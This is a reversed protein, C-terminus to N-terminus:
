GDWVIDRCNFVPGETCVRALTTTKGGEPGRTRVRHVCALCAGLGCGMHQDMSVWGRSGRVVAVRECIAQLLGSPGCAFFEPNRAPPNEKLWEDLAATVLGKKGSSGDETAPRVKWGLRRFDEACLIDGASKGGIFAIGKERARSALFYLPAAGYGGAVLVPFSNKQMGPFGNGLPGIINVTDGRRLSAMARTGRGVCKYLLALSGSKAHFVSFPRRLVATAPSPARLHVFQGPRVEQSIDKSKLTLVRYSDNVARHALVTTNEIHM